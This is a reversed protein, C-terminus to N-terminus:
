TLGSTNCQQGIVLVTTACRVDRLSFLAKGAYDQLLHGSTEIQLGLNESLIGSLLSM